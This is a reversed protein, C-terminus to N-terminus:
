ARDEAEVNTTACGGKVKFTRPFHKDDDYLGYENAIHKYLDELSGILDGLSDLAELRSGGTHFIFGHREMEWDMECKTILKSM